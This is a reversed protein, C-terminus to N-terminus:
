DLSISKVIEIQFKDDHTVAYLVNSAVFHYIEELSITALGITKDLTRIDLARINLETELIRYTHHQGFVHFSYYNKNKVIDKDLHKDLMMKFDIDCVVDINLQRDQLHVAKVDRKLQITLVYDKETECVDLLKSHYIDQSIIAFENM